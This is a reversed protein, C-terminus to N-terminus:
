FFTQPGGLLVSRVDGGCALGQLLPLWPKVWLPQHEDIFGADRCRDGAEVPSCRLALPEDLFHQMPVPFGDSEDRCQAMVTNSRGEHEFARHITLHELGINFLEERRCQPPIVYYEHIVDTNMFNSSDFFGDFRATCSKKVERSVTGVEIGDLM